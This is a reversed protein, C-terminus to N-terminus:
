VANCFSATVLGLLFRLRSCSSLVSASTDEDNSGIDVSVPASRTCGWVCGPGDIRSLWLSRSVLLGRSPAARSASVWIEVEVAAGKGFDFRKLVEVCDGKPCFSEEGSGSGAVLGGVWVVVFEAKAEDPREAKAEVALDGKPADLEDVLLVPPNLAAVPGLIDLKAEGPLLSISFGPNLLTPVVEGNAALLDGGKPERAGEAKADVM